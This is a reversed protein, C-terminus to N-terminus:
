WLSHLHIPDFEWTFGVIMSVDEVESGDQLDGDNAETRYLASGFVAFRKSLRRDVRFQLYWFTSDVASDTSGNERVTLAEGVGPVVVGGSGLPLVAGTVPDIEITTPSLTVVQIPIESTSRRNTWVGDLRAAWLQSPNWVATATVSDSITSTGFGGSTSAGRSYGLSGYGHLWRKELTIGGFFDFAPDIGDDEVPVEVAPSRMPVGIAQCGAGTQDLYPTGDSLTPCTAVNIPLGLGGGAPFTPFQPLNFQSDLDDQVTYSPGFQVSLSATPTVEYSAYGFGSYVTSGNDANSGTGSQQDFQQRLVSGGFGVRARESLVRSVRTDGQFFSSDPSENNEYDYIFADAGAEISWLPSIPHAVSIGGAFRVVNENDAVIREDASGPDPGTTQFRASTSRVRSLDVNASVQTRGNLLWAGNGNLFHDFGNLEDNQLYAQYRARYALDFTLDGQRRRLFVDPGPRLSFDSEEDRDTAFVNSDWAAEGTAGLVLEVAAAPGALGVGLLLLWLSIAVRRAIM